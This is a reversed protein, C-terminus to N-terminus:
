AKRYFKIGVRDIHARLDDNSIMSRIVIDTKYPLLLDDIKEEIKWKSNLTLNKGELAIDVDSYPKFNGKARSGYIIAEDIDSFGALITKIKSIESDKLGFRM